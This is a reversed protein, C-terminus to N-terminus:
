GNIHRLLHGTASVAVAFDPTDAAGSAIARVFRKNGKYGIYHKGVKLETLAIVGSSTTIRAAAAKLDENASIELQADPIAAYSANVDTDAHQLTINVDGQSGGVRVDVEFTVAEVGKTDFGNGDAPTFNAAPEEVIFTQGKLRSALGRSAM